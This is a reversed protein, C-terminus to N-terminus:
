GQNANKTHQSGQYQKDKEAQKKYEYLIRKVYAYTLNEIKDKLKLFVDIYKQSPDKRYQSIIQEKKSM